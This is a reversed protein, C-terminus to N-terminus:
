AMRGIALELLDLLLCHLWFDLGKAGQPPNLAYGARTATEEFRARFNENPGASVSWTGVCDGSCNTSGYARLRRNGSPDTVTAWEEEALGTFETNLKRWFDGSQM